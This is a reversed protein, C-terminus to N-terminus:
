SLTAPGVITGSGNALESSSSQGVFSTSPQQYIVALSNFEDFIRDRMEPSQDESFAQINPLAPNVVRRAADIDQQFLRGLVSAKLQCVDFSFCFKTYCVLWKKQPHQM